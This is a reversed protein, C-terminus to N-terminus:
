LMLLSHILALIPVLSSLAMISLLLLLTQLTTPTSLLLPFSLISIVILRIVPLLSRSRGLRFKGKATNLRYGVRPGHDNLVCSSCTPALPLVM